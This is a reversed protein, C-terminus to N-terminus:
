DVHIKKHDRPDTSRSMARRIEGILIGRKQSIPGHRDLSTICQSHIPKMYLKTSFRGNHPHFTVMTDLFPLCNDEPIEVTFKLATNISNATTLMEDPTLNNFSSQIERDLNNMYIIALTPALNNGMALGSKQSYSNGEILVVDSTICLRLLSVFDDDSLHQLDTATKHTSFFDKMITFVGPTGDELDELPISGYLNCVDLSCFGKIDDLTSIFDIFEQTNKLHAPVHTLINNLSKVLFTSLRTAPTDTAAHIPRGKLEGKKHDKPLCYVSCPLPECCINDKLAKCLEPHTKSYKNAIKNLHGNFKIQETRPHNLKSKRLQYNGTAITSNQVMHKYQIKDIAVLRKTKDTPTIIVSDPPKEYKLRKSKLITTGTKEGKDIIRALGGSVENIAYTPTLQEELKDITTQLSARSLLCTKTLQKPDANVYSPGKNLVAVLKPDLEHTSLNKFGQPPESEMSNNQQSHRLTLTRLKQTKIEKLQDEYASIRQDEMQNLPFICGKISSLLYYQTDLALQLWQRSHKTALAEALPSNTTYKLVNPARLGQPILRKRKCDRLFGINSKIRIFTKATRYYSSFFFPTAM